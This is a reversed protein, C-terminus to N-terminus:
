DYFENEMTDKKFDKKAGLMLVQRATKWDLIKKM